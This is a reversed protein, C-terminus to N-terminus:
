SLSTHMNITFVVIYVTHELLWETPTKSILKKTGYKGTGVPRSLEPPVEKQLNLLNYKFM